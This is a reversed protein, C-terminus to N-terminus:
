RSRDPVRRFARMLISVWVGICALPALLAIMVSQNSLHAPEEQNAQWVQWHILCMMLVLLSGLWVAHAILFARTRALRSPDLWYERNPIKLVTARSYTVTLLAVVACPLGVAFLLAFLHYNSRSMFSNASGAADFHVAVRPPLDAATRNIIVVALVLLAIFVLWAIPQAYRKSDASAATL